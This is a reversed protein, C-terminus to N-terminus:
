IGTAAVLGAGGGCLACTGLGELLYPYRTSRPPANVRKALHGLAEEALEPAVLPQVTVVAEGSARWLGTWYCERRLIRVVGDSAWRKAQPVPAGARNLAGAIVAGSEGVAARRFIERVAAAEAPIEGWARAARDYALGFPPKTPARGALAARARGAIARARRLRNDKAAFLTDLTTRFDGEESATDILEGTSAYCLRVGALQLTGIILGREQQNEARTLRSADYVIVVDFRRAEADDLLRRLGPRRALNGAKASVGDDVYEGVFAWGRAAILAMGAARQIDITAADRQKGSSVRLSLAARM